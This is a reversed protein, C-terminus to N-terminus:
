WKPSTYGRLRRIKRELSLRRRESIDPRNLEEKFSAIVRRLSREFVSRTSGLYLPARTLETTM